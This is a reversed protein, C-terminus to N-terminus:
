TINVTLVNEVSVEYAHDGAVFWLPSSDRPTAGKAKLVLAGPEYRFRDKDAADGGYFSWQVGMKSTTFDDSLALGHPVAAVPPKPGGDHKLRAPTCDM